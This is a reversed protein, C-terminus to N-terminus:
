GGSKLQPSHLQNDRMFQDSDRQSEQVERYTRCTTKPINSGLPAVSKCIRRDADRHTLLTNVSEQDNFLQIKSDQNMAAVTGYKEFISQMDGLKTDVTGREETTLFEYRGGPVMQKHIAASAAVLDDKTAAKLAPEAANARPTMSSFLMTGAVATCVLANFKM